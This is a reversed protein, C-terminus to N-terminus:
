RNENEKIYKIMSKQSPFIQINNCYYAFISGVKESIAIITCHKLYNHLSNKVILRLLNKACNSSFLTIYTKRQLIAAGAEEPLDQGYHANYIEINNVEPPMTKTIQSGHLYVMNKYRSAPLKTLLSDVNKSQLEIKYNKEKLIKATEEGVCWINKSDNVNHPLMSAAYKSTIIIDSYKSYIKEINKINNNASLELMSCDIVCSKEIGNKELDLKFLKNEEKTRTILIYFDNNNKEEQM